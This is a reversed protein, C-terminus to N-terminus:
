QRRPPINKFSLTDVVIGDVMYEVDIYAPTRMNPSHPDYDLDIRVRLVPPPDQGLLHEWHGELRRWNDLPTTEGPDQNLSALMPVMNIAEGPGGFETGFLHGGDFTVAAYLIVESLSPTRGFQATFQDVIDKNIAAYERGGVHGIPTQDPGRRGEDSGFLDLKGQALVVRGQADTTYHFREDVSYSAEPFPRKLDPNFGDGIMRRQATDRSQRRGSDTHVEHIHGDPGTIFLGRDRGARDTVRYATDAELKIPAGTREDRGFPRRRKPALADDAEVTVVPRNGVLEEYGRRHPEDAAFMDDRFASRDRAGEPTLGHKDADPTGPAFGDQAATTRTGDPRHIQWEGDPPIRPRRNGDPGIDATSAYVRGHEDTWVPKTAALVDVGLATSLRSAFDNASADCGIVRLPTTGDWDSRRVLDAYQEPTYTRDGIRANGDETIHVDASFYGPDHPVRRALDAMAPDDGHHAIGADTREGYRDAEDLAPDHDPTTVEPPPVNENEHQTAVSEANPRHPDTRRLIEAPDTGNRAELRLAALRHAPSGGEPPLPAADHLRDRYERHDFAPDHVLETALERLRPVDPHDGLRTLDSELHWPTMERDIEAMTRDAWMVVPERNPSFRILPEHGTEPNPDWQHEAIIKEYNRARQYENAPEWYLHPGHQIGADLRALRQEHAALEAPTLRTGDAHRMDFLDHDGTVPRYEGDVRGELIGKSTIQFKGQEILNRMYDRYAEFDNERDTLRKELKAMDEPSVTDPDPLRLQGPEFRGVLGKSEAPAGLAIDADNITKDKIAMPKPMAGDQLHRVADPNTPRVDIQLNHQDAYAQIKRQNQEPIGYTSEIEAPHAEVPDPAPHYEIVMRHEPLPRAFGAMRRTDLNNSAGADITYDYDDNGDGEFHTLEVVRFPNARDGYHAELAQWLKTGLIHGRDGPTGNEEQPKMDWQVEIRGGPVMADALAAAMPHYAADPLEASVNNIYVRAIRGNGPGALIHGDFLLNGFLMVSGPATIPGPDLIGLDRRRQGAIPFESALETKIILGGGSRDAAPTLDVAFASRGVGVDVTHGGDVAAQVTPRQRLPIRTDDDGFANQQLPLRHQPQPRPLVDVASKGDVADHVVVTYEANVGNEAAGRNASDIDRLFDGLTTPRGDVMLAGTAHDLVGTIHDPGRGFAEAAEHMRAFNQPGFAERFNEPTSSEFANLAHHLARAREPGSLSPDNIVANIPNLAALLGPVMRRAAKADPEFLPDFLRRSQEERMRGDLGQREATVVDDAHPGTLHQALQALHQDAAQDFQPDTLQPDFTPRRSLAGDQELQWRRALEPDHARLLERATDGQAPVPEAPATEAPATRGPKPDAAAGDPQTTTTHAPDSLGLRDTLARLDARLRPLEQARAPDFTAADIQATLVRLEAFRGALHPTLQDPRDNNRDIDPDLSIRPDLGLRIEALEHAVARVVDEDRAHPSVRVDYGSGDPRAHFEAVAGDRTPGVRVTVTGHEGPLVFHHQDRNFAVDEPTILGLNAKIEERLFDPDLEDGPRAEGNYDGIPTSQGHEPPRREGRSDSPLGSRGPGQQASPDHVPVPVIGATAADASDESGRHTEGLPAPEEARGDTPPHAAEIREGHVDTPHGTNDTPHGAMDIPHGADAHANATDGHRDVHETSDTAEIGTRGAQVPGATHAPDGLASRTATSPQGAIPKPASGDGPALPRAGPAPKATDGPARTDGSQGTTPNAGTNPNSTGRADPAANPSTSNPAGTHGPAAGQSAGPTTGIAGNGAAGPSSGPSTNAEAPHTGKGEPNSENRGAVDESKAPADHGPAEAGHSDPAAGSDNTHGGTHEGGPTRSDPSHTADGGDGTADADVDPKGNRGGVAPADGNRQPQEQRDDTAPADKGAGPNGEGVPSSAPHTAPGGHQGSDGTGGPQQGASNSGGAGRQAPDTSGDPRQGTDARQGGSDTTAGPTRPNTEAGSHVPANFNAPASGDNPSGVPRGGFDTHGAYGHLASPGAGSFAGGTLSRPDFEWNGTLLGGGLWAGGAGAAGAGLGTLAGNFAGRRGGMNTPLFHHAGFGFAGGTGGAIASIAANSGIAGWDYGDTHGTQQQITQVLFEQSTGQLAEVFAEQGIEYVLKPIIRKLVQNTIRDALAHTIRNALQEGLERFMVRATAFITGELAPAFPGTAAAWALEAVLWAGAIYFNLKASQLQDGMGDAAAALARYNEGIEKISGHHEPGQGDRLPLLWQLIKEGGTGDPYADGLGSILHDLDARLDDVQGAVDELDRGMQWMLDENGHPWDSGVLWELWELWSPFEM